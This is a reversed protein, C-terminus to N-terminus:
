PYAEWWWIGCRSSGCREIVVGGVVGDVVPVGGVVMGVVAVGEGVVGGVLVSLIAVGGVLVDGVVVGVVAVGVVVIYSDCWIKDSRSSWYWSNDWGSSGCM